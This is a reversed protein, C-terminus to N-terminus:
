GVTAAWISGAQRRLLTPVLLLPMIIPTASASAPVMTSAITRRRYALFTAPIPRTACGARGGDTASYLGKLGYYFINPNFPDVGLSPNYPLFSSQLQGPLEPGQRIDSWTAGGDTSKFLGMAPPGLALCDTVPQGATLVAAVYFTRNDPRRSQALMAAGFALGPRMGASGPVFFAQFTTGSDTSRFIGRGAVAAYVVSQSLTDIKVDAINGSLVQTWNTGGATARFLGATSGILLTDSNPMAMRNIAQGTMQGNPNIVTWSEGGDTSKFAGSGSLDGLNVQNGSGAYVIQPNNPDLVVAGMATTPMSDTKPQWSQGGDTSKWVGGADTAVFIIQDANGTPDIAIDTVMGSLTGGGSALQGAGLDHIPGLGIQRWVGAEPLQALVTKAPCCLVLFALPVMLLMSRNM